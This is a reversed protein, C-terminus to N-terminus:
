KKLAQVAQKQKMVSQWVKLTPFPTLCRLSNDQPGAGAAPRLPGRAGYAQILMLHGGADMEM